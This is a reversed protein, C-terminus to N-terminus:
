EKNKTNKKETAAHAKEKLEKSVKKGTDVLNPVEKKFKNILDPMREANYIVFVAIIVLVWIM